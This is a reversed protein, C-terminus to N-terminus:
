RKHKRLLRDERKWKIFEKGLNPGVILLLYLRIPNLDSFLLLCWEPLMYAYRFHRHALDSSVDCPFNNNHHRNFISRGYSLPYLVRRIM